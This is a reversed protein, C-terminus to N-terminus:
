SEELFATNLRIEAKNKLAEMFKALVRQRSEALAQKKISERDKEFQNMDANQSAKFALLYLGNQQTYLKEAIRRQESLTLPGARLEALEGVKPLQTASRAFWGTEEM